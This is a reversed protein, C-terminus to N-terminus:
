CSVYCDGALDPLTAILHKARDFCDYIRGEAAVWLGRIYRDYFVGTYMTEYRARVAPDLALNDAMTFHLHLM